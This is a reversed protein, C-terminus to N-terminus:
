GIEVLFLDINVAAVILVVAERITMVLVIVEVVAAVAVNFCNFISPRINGYYRCGKSTTVISSSIIRIHRLNLM